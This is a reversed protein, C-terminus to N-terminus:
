NAKGTHGATSVPTQGTTQAVLAQMRDLARTTAPSPAPRDDLDERGRATFVVLFLVNCWFHSEHALGSEQDVQEGALYAVAHRAASAFTQVFSLGKEWGRPQYKRAGFSLVEVVGRVQRRPFSLDLRCPKGTLWIELAAFVERVSYEADTVSVDAWPFLDYQAKGSNARAGLTPAQEYKRGMVEDYEGITNAM